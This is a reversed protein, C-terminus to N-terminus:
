IGLLIELNMLYFIDRMGEIVWFKDRGIMDREKVFSNLEVRKFIRKRKVWM